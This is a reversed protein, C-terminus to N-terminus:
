AALWGENEENYEWYQVEEEEEGEDRWHHRMPGSAEVDASPILEEVGSIGALAPFAEARRALLEGIAADYKAVVGKTYGRITLSILSKPLADVLKFPTTSGPPGLLLKIGISLHTLAEFDHLSGITNNYTRDDPLEYLELPGPSDAEDQRFYSDRWYPEEIYDEEEARREVYEEEDHNDDSSLMSDLDIDLKRLSSRSSWLAKGLTKATFIWHGGPQFRNTL